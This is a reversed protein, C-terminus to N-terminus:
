ERHGLRPEENWTWVKGGFRVLWQTESGNYFMWFVRGLDEEM